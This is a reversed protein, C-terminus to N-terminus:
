AVTAGRAARLRRSLHFLEVFANVIVRPQGGTARGARRQFHAVPVEVIRHGGQRLRALLEASAVAGDSEISFGRLTTRRFIKFACNVDRVPVRFLRRVLWNWAAANLRRPLPDARRERYGVVVDATGLPDLLELLNAPNFQRDADTFFVYEFRAEEFGSRLAAGYGRNRPHHVVRVVGPRRRALMDALVGTRDRSGDDVIILEYREAVRPLVRLVAEAMPVINEEEDYAPLFASLGSLHRTPRPRPLARPDAVSPPHLRRAQLAEATDGRM